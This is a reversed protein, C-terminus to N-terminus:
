LIMIVKHISPVIEVSESNFLSFINWTSSIKRVLTNKYVVYKNEAEVYQCFKSGAVKTDAVDYKAIKKSIDYFTTYKVNNSTVLCKTGIKNFKIYNLTDRAYKYGYVQCSPILPSDGDNKDFRPGVCIRSNAEILNGYVRKFYKEGNIKGNIKKLFTEHARYNPKFTSIIYEPVDKFKSKAITSIDIEDAYVPNLRLCVKVIDLPLIKIISDDIDELQMADPAPVFTSVKYRMIYYYSAVIFNYYAEPADNYQTIYQKICTILSSLEMNSFNELVLSSVNFTPNNNIYQAYGVNRRYFVISTNKHFHVEIGLPQLFQEIDTSKLKLNMVTYAYSNARFLFIGGTKKFLIDFYKEVNASTEMFHLLMEANLNYSTEYETLIYEGVLPDKNDLAGIIIFKDLSFNKSNELVSKVDSFPLTKVLSHFFPHRYVEDGGKLIIPIITALYSGYVDPCEVYNDLYQTGCCLLSSTRFANFTEIAEKSLAFEATQNYKIM